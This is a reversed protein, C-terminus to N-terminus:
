LVLRGVCLSPLGACTGEINPRLKCHWGTLPTFERSSNWQDRPIWHCGRTYNEALFSAGHVGSSNLTSVVVRYQQGPNIPTLVTTSSAPGETNHCNITVVPLLLPVRSFHWRNRVHQSSALLRPGIADELSFKQRFDPLACTCSGTAPNPHRCGGSNGCSPVPDDTQFGGGFSPGWPQPNYERTSTNKSSQTVAEISTCVTIKTSVITSEDVGGDSPFGTGALATFYLAPLSWEDCSCAQTRHNASRCAGSITDTQFVGAIAIHPPPQKQRQHAYKEQQEANRTNSQEDRGIPLCFGLVAPRFPGGNALACDSIVQVPQVLEAGPPCSCTGTYPNVNVDSCRECGPYPNTFTPSTHTLYAGAYDIAVFAGPPFGVFVTGLVVIFLSLM